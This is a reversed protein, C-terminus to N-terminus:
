QVGEPLLVLLEPGSVRIEVQGGSATVTEALDMVNWFSAGDALGVQVTESREGSGKHLVVVAEEGGAEEFRYIYLDSDVFLTTVEGRRIAKSVRRANGVRRVGARLREQNASLYPAFSMPRRNDPDGDGALGIEDGYYLLPMGPQTLTFALALQVRILLDLQDLNSGGAALLDPTDGWAGQGNGVMETVLRQVDHNGAFPSMIADGWADGSSQVAADLDVFSGGQAFAQRIAWYLPFDYQGHLRGEGIFRMIEGHGDSGTFTEGMLLVTPSGPHELEAGLRHRLGRVVSDTMHKVADIRLADVNYERVWWLVNDVAAQVADHQTYDLDPLYPMFWCDLKREEWDCGADGCTCGGDHFWDPHDTVWPHNEHVHNLAMDFMVRIGKAHAAAIVERLRSDADLDEDGYCTEVGTESEPWYGHFGSFQHAGDQAIYAGHPNEVVPSLWLVNAGLRTFYDEELAHLIGLFDGGNYNAREEVGTVPDCAGAGDWDGNRFRDVMAFYMLGDTWEFPTEEVWLPVHLPGGDIANGAVDSARVVVTHKGPALGSVSASVTGPGPDLTAAWTNGGSEVEVTDPDLVVGGAGRVFQLELTGSGDASVAASVVELAPLQCDPVLLNRNEVGGDWHSTVEPPISEEWTGDLVFKYAFEGAGPEVDVCFRGEVDPGAMEEPEWGTFDAAFDMSAVDEGPSHVVRVSCSRTPPDSVVESCDVQTGSDGTDDQAGSDPQSDGPGDKGDSPPTCGWLGAVVLALLSM